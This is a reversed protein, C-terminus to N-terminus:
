KRTLKNIREIWDTKSGTYAERNNRYKEALGLKLDEYEIAIDRHAILYDRFRIEDWDGKYRVHVHYAQGEYGHTTYGKVFMMHPPPNYSQRTYQYGLSSFVNKLKQIDAQESIQMLIDIAPKAKLGPVATSGIHDIKLIESQLFSNIIKQREKNYLDVWRLSYDTIIVPFLKGLEETTMDHLSREPNM